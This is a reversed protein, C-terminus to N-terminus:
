YEFLVINGLQSPHNGYQLFLHMWTGPRAYRHIYIPLLDLQALQLYFPALGLMRNLDELIIWRRNEVFALVVDSRIDDNVFAKAAHTKVYQLIIHTMEPPLNYKAGLAYLTVKGSVM